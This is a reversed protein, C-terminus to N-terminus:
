LDDSPLVSESQKQLSEKGKAETLKARKEPRAETTQLEKRKKKSMHENHALTKLWHCNKCRLDCKAMEKAIEDYPVEDGCMQSIRDIKTDPDRHDFDFIRFNTSTVNVKCDVCEKRRTKETNVQDLLANRRAKRRLEHDSYSRNRQMEDNERQTELAHCNKCLIKTIKREEKMKDLSLNRFLMKKGTQHSQAKTERDVHAFELANPNTNHAYCCEPNECRGVKEKETQMYEKKESIAQKKREKTCKKCWSSFGDTSSSDVYFQSTILETECHVCPKSTIHKKTKTKRKKARCKGCTNRRGMFGTKEKAFMGLKLIQACEGQCKKAIIEGQENKQIDNITLKTRKTKLLITTESM